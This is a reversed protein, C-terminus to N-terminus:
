PMVTDSTSRRQQEARMQEVQQRLQAIEQEQQPGPQNQTQKTGPRMMFFMMVGMALPCALAPLIYLLHQM